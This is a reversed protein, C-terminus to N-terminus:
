IARVLGGYPMLKAGPWLLRREDLLSSRHGAGMHRVLEEVGEGVVERRLLGDTGLAAPWPDPVPDDDPDDPEHEGGAGAPLVDRRFEAAGAAGGVAPEPFGSVPVCSSDFVLQM